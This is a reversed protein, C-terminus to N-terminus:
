PLEWFVVIWNAFQVVGSEHDIARWALSWKSLICYPRVLERPKGLSRSKYPVRRLAM